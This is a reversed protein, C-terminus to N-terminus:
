LLPAHAEDGDVLRMADALPSVIEARFVALEPAQAVLKDVRREVREGGCGGLPHPAVDRALQAKRGRQNEDSREIARVQDVADQPAAIQVFLELVDEGTM